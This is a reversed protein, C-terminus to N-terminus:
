STEVKPNANPKPNLPNLRWLFLRLSCARGVWVLPAQMGVPTGRVVARLARPVKINAVLTSPTLDVQPYTERCMMDYWMMHM